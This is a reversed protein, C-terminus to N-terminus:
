LPGAHEEDSKSYLLIDDVFVMIFVDLFPHFIRNMYEMFVCPANSVSFSMM